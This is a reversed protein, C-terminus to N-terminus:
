HRVAVLDQAEGTDFKEQIHTDYLDYALMDVDPYCWGVYKYVLLPHAWIELNDKDILISRGEIREDLCTMFRIAGMELLFTKPNQEPITGYSKWVDILSCLGDKNSKIKKKEVAIVTM